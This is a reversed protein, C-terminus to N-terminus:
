DRFLLSLSYRIVDATRSPKGAWGEGLGLVLLSPWDGRRRRLAPKPFRLGEWEEVGILLCVPCLCLDCACFKVLRITM